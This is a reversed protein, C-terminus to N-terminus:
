SPSDVGLGKLQEPLEIEQFTIGALPLEDRLGNFLHPTVIIRNLHAQKELRFLLIAEHGAVDEVCGADDKSFAFFDKHALMRLRVQFGLHERIPNGIFLSCILRVLGETELGWLLAADGIAKIYHFGCRNARETLQDKLYQDFMATRTAGFRRAQPTYEVVDLLVLIADIKKSAAM